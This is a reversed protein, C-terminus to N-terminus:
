ADVGVERDEEEEVGEVREALEELAARVVGAEEVVDIEVVGEVM